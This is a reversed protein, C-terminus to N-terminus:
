VTNQKIDYRTLHEQIIELKPDKNCETFLSLLTNAFYKTQFQPYRLENVMANLLLDRTFPDVTTITGIIFEQVSLPKKNNSSMYRIM